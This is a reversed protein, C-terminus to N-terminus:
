KGEALKNKGFKAERAQVEEQTLGQETTQQEKLVDQYKSLYEKLTKGGIIISKPLCFSGYVVITDGDYILRM